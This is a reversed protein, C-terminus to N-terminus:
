IEYKTEDELFIEKVDNNKRYFMLLYYDFALFSIMLSTYQYASTFMLYLQLILIEILFLNKEKACILNKLGLLLPALYFIILYIGGQVLVIIFSNSLGTNYMRYDSMYKVVGNNNLYGSGFTPNDKFASFGATYDDNRINYSNSGQKDYFFTTGITLIILFAIPLIIIKIKGNNFFTYKYFLLFLYFLLGTVSLTSLISIGFIISYKNIIKKRFFLSLSMAFMLHLAFMPGEVFISTNRLLTQSFMVTTQTNFHLYFYGNITTNKGWDIVKTVNTQIINTLSGLCFFILSASAIVIMINVYVKFLNEVDKKSYVCFMLFLLPFLLLFTNLFSVQYDTVNIFFFLMIYIVYFGLFIVGRKKIRYNYNLFFILLSIFIISINFIKGLNEDVFHSFVSRSDLIIFFTLLYQLITNLKDKSIM